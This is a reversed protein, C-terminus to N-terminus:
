TDVDFFCTSLLTMLIYPNQEWSILKINYLDHLQLWTLIRDKNLPKRYGLWLILVVIILTVPVQASKICSNCKWTKLCVSWHLSYFSGTLLSTMHIDCLVNKLSPKSNQANYRDTIMSNYDYFHGRKTKWNYIRMVLNNFRVNKTNIMSKWVKLAVLGQAM